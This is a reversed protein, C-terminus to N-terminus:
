VYLVDSTAVTVLNLEEWPTNPIQVILVALTLSDMNLFAPNVFILKPNHIMSAYVVALHAITVHLHVQQHKVM